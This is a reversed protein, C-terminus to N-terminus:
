GVVLAFVSLGRQWAVKQREFAEVSVAFVSDAVAFAVFARDVTGCRHERFTGCIRTRRGAL